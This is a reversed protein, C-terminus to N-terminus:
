LRKGLSTGDACDLRRDRLQLVQNPGYKKTDLEDNTNQKIMKNACTVQQTATMLPPHKSADPVRNRASALWSQYRRMRPPVYDRPCILCLLFPRNRLSQEKDTVTM